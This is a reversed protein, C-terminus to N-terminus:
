RGAAPATRLAPPTDTLFRRAYRDQDVYEDRDFDPTLPRTIV